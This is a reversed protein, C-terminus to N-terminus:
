PSVMRLMRCARARTLANMMLSPSKLSLASLVRGMEAGHPYAGAEGIGGASVIEICFLAAELQLSVEVSSREACFEEVASTCSEMYHTSNARWCAVLADSLVDERFARFETANVGCADHSAFSITGDHVVHPLIAQRQLMPLLEPTLSPMGAVINSLVPLGLACINVSPHSAAKLLLNLVGSEIPRQEGGAPVEMFTSCVSVAIRVLNRCVGYEGILVVVM